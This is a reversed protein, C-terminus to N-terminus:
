QQKAKSSIVKQTTDGNVRENKRFSYM